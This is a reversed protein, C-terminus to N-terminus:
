LDHLRHLLHHRPDVRRRPHDKVKRIHNEKRVKAKEKLDVKLSDPSCNVSAARARIWEKISSYVSAIESEILDLSEYQGAVFLSTDETSEYIKTQSFVTFVEKILFQSAQQVSENAQGLVLIQDVGKLSTHLGILDTASVLGQQIRRYLRNLDSFSRLIRVISERYEKEELTWSEVANLNEQIETFSASPKLLRERLLRKGMPTACSDFLSLVDQNQGEPVIM